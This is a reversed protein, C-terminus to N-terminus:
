CDAPGAVGLDAVQALDLVAGKSGYSHGRGDNLLKVTPSEPSGVSVKIVLAVEGSTLKVTTAVPYPVLHQILRDVVRPDLLRGGETQITRMALSPPLAPKYVRHNTIADYVDAVAAVRAFEIIGDGKLGRPYGSGDLREHHQFAVHASLLNIEMESRLTEFGKSTHTKIHEFEEPTLFGPKQLTDQDVLCKGLDHLVTGVGLDTLQSRSYGFSKGVIISYIAVNVSHTFTYDDLSRLDILGVMMERSYLIEEVITEVDRRLKALDGRGGSSMATLVAKTTSVAQIRTEQSVVEPIILDDEIGDAVYISAYGKEKLRRCYASNLTVGATLLVKGGADIITRGLRMGPEVRDLHIVRM